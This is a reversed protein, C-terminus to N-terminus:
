PKVTRVKIDANPYKIEFICPDLSPYVIGNKTAGVMDYVNGSYGLNKDFLNKIEFKAVSQVGPLRDLESTINSINILGNIQLRDPDFMQKLKNICTLIVENANYSPVPVIDVEMGVNVIYATKINIADTLMRYNSLYTRLNEKTAPNLETFNRNADYSLVYLNLALPNPITDRPYERDATDLQLDSVIYAKAVSGFRGPMSYCRTIYDERTIARNQAAFSAMANQRISDLSDKSKGGTAASPNNVAVSGKTDTLDLGYLETASNYTVNDIKTLTNSAVNDNVSGGISYTVTLVVNNPALGYTSTYLFNSPDINSNTTRALYELGLGVNKPNPILEEDADSSIGSGFQLEIRNDERVRTVFRRASRRLKMLYPTSSRYIFLEQDNYPINAVDELVTDQALYDVEYWTNGDDDTVSIIDLINSEPLVIKDYPKPDTFAFTTTKVEGSVAQVSKKLLYYQVNGSGDIEYVSIDTPNLSSSFTFDVDAITRFKIPTTASDTSVQMGQRINLCYRFDPRANAGSGLAPVLQYVDLDVIAPTNLKPKYGFLQSLMLVNSEETANSLVSERFSQDAYFSLVDGVYSAMEIFMMGPSSENFDNYTNPYYQKAFTILNQRFQAFDKNLYKVDKKVLDM